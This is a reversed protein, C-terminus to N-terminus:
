PVFLSQPRILKGLRRQEVVHACWGAVRGAAFVAAFGARPLGIAELLVATFFEVNAPLPRDPSKQQLKQTAAKEVDRALELRRRRAAPANQLLRVVAGELVAARPDRVRYIRHGFGMLRRGAALEDDIVGMGSAEIKDLLDLVPGPAGGHLPGSLAAVAATLSASLSAQTSAVVRATFTSANMGHDIVTTLYTDLARGADADVNGTSKALLWAGASSPTAPADAASAIPAGTRRRLWAAVAAHAAGVFAAPDEGTTHSLLVRLTAMPDDLDLAGAFAAANFRVFAGARAADVRAAFEVDFAARKDKADADKADADKAARALLLAAVDLFRTDALDELPRGAILLVGNKGDVSSLRTAAAVVDELGSSFPRAPANVDLM